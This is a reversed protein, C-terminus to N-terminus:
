KRIFRSIVFAHNKGVVEDLFYGLYFTAKVQETNVRYTRLGRVESILRTTPANVGDIVELMCVQSKSSSSETSSSVFLDSMKGLKKPQDVGEVVLAPSESDCLEYLKTQAAEASLFNEQQSFLLVVVLVTVMLVSILFTRFTFERKKKM